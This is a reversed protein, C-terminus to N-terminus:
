ANKTNSLALKTLYSQYLTDTRKIEEAEIYDVWSGYDYNRKAESTHIIRVYPVKRKIAEPLIELPHINDINEEEVIATKYVIQIGCVSGRGWKLVVKKM